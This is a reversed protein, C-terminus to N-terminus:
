VGGTVRAVDRREGASNFGDLSFIAPYKSGSDGLGDFKVLRTM